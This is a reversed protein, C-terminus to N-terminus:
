ILWSLILKDDLKNHKLKRIKEFTEKRIFKNTIIMKLVQYKIQPNLSNLYQIQNNLDKSKLQEIHSTLYNKWKGKNPRLKNKIHKEKKTFPVFKYNKLSSAASKMRYVMDPEKVCKSLLEHIRYHNEVTLNILNSKSNDVKLKHLKYWCRPIIHHKHFNNQVPNKKANEIILEIEKFYENDYCIDKLTM